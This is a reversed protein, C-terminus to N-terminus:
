LIGYIAKLYLEVDNRHSDSISEHYCLFAAMDGNYKGDNGLNITGITPDNWNWTALDPNTHTTILSGNKYYKVTRGTVVDQTHVFELIVPNTDPLTFDVTDAGTDDWQGTSYNRLWEPGTNPAGDFIGIPNVTAPKLVFFYSSSNGPAMTAFKLYLSNAGDFRYVSRGNIINTKYTPRNAASTQLGHMAAASQDTAKYVTDGDVCLTVGNDKYSQLRAEVWTSLNTQYALAPDTNTIAKQISVFLM